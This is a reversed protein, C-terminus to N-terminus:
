TQKLGALLSGYTEESDWFILIQDRIALRLAGDQGIASLVGLAGSTALRGNRLPGLMSWNSVGDFVNLPTIAIENILTCDFQPKSAELLLGESLLKTSTEDFCNVASILKHLDRVGMAINSDGLELNTRTNCQHWTRTCPTVNSLELSLPEHFHASHIELPAFVLEQLAVGLPKQCIHEIVAGLVIHGMSYEFGTGPEFKLPVSALQRSIADLPSDAGASAALCKMGAPDLSSAVYLEDVADTQSSLQKGYGLGSQHLLLHKITIVNTASKSDYLPRRWLQGYLKFYPLIDEVPQDLSMLGEEILKLVGIATVTKTISGLPVVVSDMECPDATIVHTTNMSNDGATVELTGKSDQEKPGSKQLGWKTAVYESLSSITADNLMDAPSIAVGVKSTIGTTIRVIHMSSIGSGVFPQDIDLETGCVSIAVQSIAHRIAVLQSEFDGREQQVLPLLGVIPTAASIVQQSRGDRVPRNFMLGNAPQTMSSVQDAVRMADPDLHCQRGQQECQIVTHINDGSVSTGNLSGYILSSTSDPLIFSETPLLVNDTERLIDVKTDINLHAPVVCYQLALASVMMSLIGAAAVTHGFNTKHGLLVLQSDQTTALATVLAALEPVDSAPNGMGHSHCTTLQQPTIGDLALAGEAAHQIMEVDVFGGPALASNSNAVSALVTVYATEKPADSQLVLAGCAEGWVMGDAATDFPRMTGSPSLVGM